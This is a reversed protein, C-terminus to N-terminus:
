HVPNKIIKLQPSCLHLTQLLSPTLTWFPSLFFYDSLDIAFQGMFPQRLSYSRKFGSCLLPLQRSVVHLLPACASTWGM